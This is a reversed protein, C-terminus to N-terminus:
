TYNKQYESSNYVQVGYSILVYEGTTYLLNPTSHHWRKKKKESM